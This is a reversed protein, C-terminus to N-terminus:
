LAARMDHVSLMTQLHFVAEEDPPLAHLWALVSKWRRLKLYLSEMEPKQSFYADYALNISDLASKQKGQHAQSHALLIYSSVHSLREAAQVLYYTLIAEVRVWDEAEFAAKVCWMVSRYVRLSDIGCIAQVLHLWKLPSFSHSQRAKNYDLWLIEAHGAPLVKRLTFEMMNVFMSQLPEMHGLMHLRLLTEVVTNQPHSSQLYLRSMQSLYRLLQQAIAGFGRRTWTRTCVILYEVDVCTNASNNKCVSSLLNFGQRIHRGGQMFSGRRFDDIGYDVARLWANCSFLQDTDMDSVTSCVALRELDLKAYHLLKRIYTDSESDNLPVLGHHPSTISRDSASEPRPEIPKDGYVNIQIMPPSTFIGLHATGRQQQSGQNPALKFAKCQRSSDVIPTDDASGPETKNYKKLSWLAIRTKYM